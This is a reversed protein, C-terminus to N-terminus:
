KFIDKGPLLLRSMMPRLSDADDKFGSSQHISRLIPLTSSQTIQSRNILRNGPKHLWVSDAAGNGIINKVMTNPCHVEFFALYLAQIWRIDEFKSELLMLLSNMFCLLRQTKDFEQDSQGRLLFLCHKIREHAASCRCYSGLLHFSMEDAEFCNM